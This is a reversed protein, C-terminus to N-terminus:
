EGSPRYHCTETMKGDPTFRRVSDSWVPTHGDEVFFLYAAFCEGAPFESSYRRVGSERFDDMMHDQVQAHIVLTYGGDPHFINVIDCDWDDDAQSNTDDFGVSCPYEGDSHKVIAGGNNGATAPVAIVAMLMVLAGVLAFRKANKM